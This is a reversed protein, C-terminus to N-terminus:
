AEDPLPPAPPEPRAEASDADSWYLIIEYKYMLTEASRDYRVPAM